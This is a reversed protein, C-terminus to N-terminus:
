AICGGDVGYTDGTGMNEHGQIIPFPIAKPAGTGAYQTTYGPYTHTDTGCIGSLRMRVLACGPAPEPLPYERLEYRGPAVLTAARTRTSGAMQEGRKGARGQMRGNSGSSGTRCNSASARRRRCGSWGTSSIARNACRRSIP